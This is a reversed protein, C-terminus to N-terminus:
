YLEIAKIQTGNLNQTLEVVLFKKGSWSVGFCLFQPDAAFADIAIWDGLELDSNTLGITEFDIQNHTNAWIANANGVLHNAVHTASTGAINRWQANYRRTGFNTISISNTLNTNNAFYAREQIWRSEYTIENIIKTTKGINVTGNKIHSFPITRNTTPSANDLEILRSKGAATFAYAFTSQESLQRIADHSYLYNETHLNIRAKVNTNEASIFSPLDIDASAVSLEDRLLSEIIGSPDEILQTSAYSSSRGDIWTGYKRGKCAAWLEMLPHLIEGNLKQIFKLRATYIRLLVQNGVVGDTNHPMNQNQETKGYLVFLQTHDVNTTDSRGSRVHWGITNTWSTVGAAPRATPDIDFSKLTGGAVDLEAQTFAGLVIPTGSLNFWRVEPDIADVDAWEVGSITAVKIEFWLSEIIGNALTLVRGPLSPPNNLDGTGYDDFCFYAIAEAQSTALSGTDIFDTIEAFTAKDRDRAKIHNTTFQQNGSVAYGGGFDDIAYLYVTIRRNTWQSTGRGGDNTNLTAINFLFPEPFIETDYGYLASNTHLQHDSFVFKRNNVGIFEIYYGKALGLDLNHDDFDFNWEGYCLPIHRNLNDLALNSYVSSLKNSPLLRNYLISKDQITLTLNYEDYEPADLVIGEFYRLCDALAVANGGCLLYIKATRNQLGTLEDSLRVWTGVSNQKYPINSLTIVANGVSWQKSFIDVKQTIDAFNQILPYVHGDTLQAEGNSLYWTSTGDTVELILLNTTGFQNQFASFAAPPTQM